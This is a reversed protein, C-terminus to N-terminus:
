MVYSFIGKLWENVMDNRAGYALLLEAMEKNGSKAAFHLATWGSATQACANAGRQLLLLVLKMFGLKAAVLLPTGASGSNFNADAGEDLM